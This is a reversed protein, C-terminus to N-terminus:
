EGDGNLADFLLMSGYVEHNIDEYGNKRLRNLLEDLEYVRYTEYKQYFSLGIHSLPNDIWGENVVTMGAFRRNPKLVRRVEQLVRELDPFFYIAGSCTVADFFSAPFPLDEANARAYGVKIKQAGTTYNVAQKLMGASLDIGHVIQNEQALRRTLLGTGCAVDLARGNKIRTRDVLEDVEESVTHYDPLSGVRYLLPFYLSQYIPHIWDFLNGVVWSSTEKQSPELFDLYGDVIPYITACRTCRVSNLEGNGLLPGNCNQCRYNEPNGGIPASRM